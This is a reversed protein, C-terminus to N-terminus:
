RQKIKLKAVWDGDSQLRAKKKAKADAILALRPMREAERQKENLLFKKERQLTSLNIVDFLASLEEETGGFGSPPPSRQLISSIADQGKTIIDKYEDGVGIAMLRESFDCAARLIQLDALSASEKRLAALTQTNKRRCYDNGRALRMLRSQRQRTLRSLRKDEGVVGTKTEAMPLFLRCVDGAIEDCYIFLRKSKMIAYWNKAFIPYLLGEIGLKNFTPDQDPYTGDAIDWYTELVDHNGDFLYGAAQCDAEWEAENKFPVDVLYERRLWCDLDLEPKLAISKLSGDKSKKVVASQQTIAERFFAVRSEQYAIRAQYAQQAKDSDQHAQQRGRQALQIAERSYRTGFPSRIQQRVPKNEAAGLPTSAAKALHLTNKQHKVGSNQATNVKAPSDFYSRTGKNQWAGPHSQPSSQSQNQQADEKKASQLEHLVHEIEDLLLYTAEAPYNARVVEEFRSHVLAYKAPLLSTRQLVQQVSRGVYYGELAEQAEFLIKEVATLM